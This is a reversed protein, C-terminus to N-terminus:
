EANSAGLDKLAEKLTKRQEKLVREELWAGHHKLDRTVLKLVQLRSYEKDNAPILNWDKTQEFIADTAEVYKDWKKRAELDPPGIKWLKYPDELRKEFRELQEEKSIALFIKILDIGDDTLMREFENIEAYARKWDAKPTLHDVREVLVRGYWTRDFIAITGASPLREWFRYLWHKQQDEPNPPGIPHVRFGRPDLKETLRQIAGGKGAADFGEFGIIVRRKQHWVGQQIRLMELQLKATKEAYAKGNDQTPFENKKLLHSLSLKAM